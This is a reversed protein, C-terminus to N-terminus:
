DDISVEYNMLANYARTDIQSKWKEAQEKIFAEKAKKYSNFAETETKFYGLHEQKGKNKSVQAKFAKHTKSWHVGILYEGRLSERKILLSNIEQPLFVCTNESYVKNGKILLDKDLHFPNGSGDGGFGIQKHCWEYFYEYSKFNDSVECGIYTPQRKKYADSYCRVLMSHWLKYEKTVVDNVRSPYKDGIIGVGFVSPSYPDKVKGSKISGLEVTAEFGTKLFQIEVNRNDNYKLVKFDGSNLSKCVKGVCDKYNVDNLYKIESYSKSVSIDTQLFLEDTFKM